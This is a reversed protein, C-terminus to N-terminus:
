VANKERHETLAIEAAMGFFAPDEAPPSEARLPM